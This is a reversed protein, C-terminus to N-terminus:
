GSWANVGRRWPLAGLFHLALCLLGAAVLGPVSIGGLPTFAILTAVAFLIAAIIALM